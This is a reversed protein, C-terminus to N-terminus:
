LSEKRAGHTSKVNTSSHLGDDHSDSRLCPDGNSERKERNGGAAKDGGVKSVPIVGSRSFVHLRLRLFEPVKLANRKLRHFIGPHDLEVPVGRSLNYPHSVLKGKGSRTGKDRRHFKGTVIFDMFALMMISGIPMGLPPILHQPVKLWAFLVGFALGLPLFVVGFRLLIFLCRVLRTVCRRSVDKKSNM